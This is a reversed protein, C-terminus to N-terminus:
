RDWILAHFRKVEEFGFRKYLGFARLNAKSVSLSVRELGEAATTEIYEALLSSGMGKGQCDRRVSLQPIMGIESNIRTALLIGCLRGNEDMAVRTTKQCFAGCTPSDILNKLFRMCGARSQYDRCLEVDPSEVYSDYIVEAASVMLEPRWNRIRFDNASNQAQVASGVKSSSLSASLFYRPLARFGLKVFSDAFECNFPMVQSEIREINELARIAKVTKEILRYYHASDAFSDLVYLGGIFGVPRDFVFYAYGVAERGDVLLFGPLASSSVLKKVLQLTPGYDWFLQRQWQSAEEQFLEDLHEVSADPLTAVEM